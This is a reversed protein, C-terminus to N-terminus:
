KNGSIECIKNVKIPNGGQLGKGDKRAVSWSAFSDMYNNEQGWGEENTRKYRQGFCIDVGIAVAATRNGLEIRM